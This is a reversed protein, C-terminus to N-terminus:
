RTCVVRVTARRTLELTAEVGMGAPVVGERVASQSLLALMPAAGPGIALGDTSVGYVEAARRPDFVARSMAVVRGSAMDVVPGGSYGFTVDRSRFWVLRAPDADIPVRAEFADNSLRAWTENPTDPLSGAPFGLVLLRSARRSPPAVPLWAPSVLGPVELVAVDNQADTALVRANEPRMHGSMVRVGRCGRVVHEATLLTGRSTVFFGTGNSWGAPRPRLLGEIGAPPDPAASPPRPPPAPRPAPMSRPVAALAPPVPPAPVPMAAATRGTPPAVPAAASRVGTMRQVLPVIDLYPREPLVAVAAVAALSLGLASGIM